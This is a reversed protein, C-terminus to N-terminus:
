GCIRSGMRCASYQPNSFTENSYFIQKCTQRGEERALRDEIKQKTYQHHWKLKEAMSKPVFLRLISGFPPFIRAVGFFVSVQIGPMIMNM